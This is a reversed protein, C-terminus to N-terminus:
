YIASITWGRSRNIYKIITGISSSYITFMYCEDQLKLYFFIDPQSNCILVQLINVNTLFINEGVWNFLQHNLILIHGSKELHLKNDYIHINVVLIKCNKGVIVLKILWFTICALTHKAIFYSLVDHLHNCICKIWNEKSKFITNM